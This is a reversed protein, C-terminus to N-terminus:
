DFQEDTDMEPDRTAAHKEAEIEEVTMDEVRRPKLTVVNDPAAESMRTSRWEVARRCLEDVPFGLTGAFSEIQDLNFKQEGKMLRQVTAPSIGTKKVIDQQSLQLAYSEGRIVAAMARNLASPPKDKNIGV